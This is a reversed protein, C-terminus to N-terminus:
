NNPTNDQQGKTMFEGRMIMSHPRPFVYLLAFISQVINEEARLVKIEHCIMKM